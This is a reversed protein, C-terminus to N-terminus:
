RGDWHTHGGISLPKEGVSQIHGGASPSGSFGGSELVFKGGVLRAARVKDM